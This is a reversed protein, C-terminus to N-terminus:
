SVRLPMVIFMFNGAKGVVPDYGSCSQLTRLGYEHLGRMLYHLDLSLVGDVKEPPPTGEPLVPAPPDSYTTGQNLPLTLTPVNYGSREMPKINCSVTGDAHFQVTARAQGEHKVSCVQQLTAVDQDGFVLHRTDDLNGGPVVQVWNPYIGDITKSSVYCSTNGVAAGAVLVYRKDKAPLTAPITILGIEVENDPLKSLMSDRRVIVSHKLPIKCEVHFLVRGDTAVMGAKRAPEKETKKKGIDLYVGNLVRRTEDTSACLLAKRYAPLFENSVPRLAATTPDSWPPLDDDAFVAQCKMAVVTGAEITVHIDAECEAPIMIPKDENSRFAKRYEGRITLISGKVPHLGVANAIDEWSIAFAEPCAHNTWSGLRYDVQNDLDTASMYGPARGVGATFRISHLCPLTAKLKAVPQCWRVGAVFDDASITLEFPVKPPTPNQIVAAAPAAPAPEEVTVAPITDTNTNM